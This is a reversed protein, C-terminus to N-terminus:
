EIELELADKLFALVRKKPTKQQYQEVDGDNINAINAALGYIGGTEPHRINMDQCARVTVNSLDMTYEMFDDDMGGKVTGKKKFGYFGMACCKMDDGIEKNWYKNKIWKYQPIKSLIKYAEKLVNHDEKNM